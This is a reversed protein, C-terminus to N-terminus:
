REYRGTLRTTIPLRQARSHWLAAALLLGWVLFWPDWLYFHWALARYDANADAHIVNAQLLLGVFTLVGGYVILVGAAVWAAVVVLKQPQHHPRTVVLGLTAAILKLLVSAWVIVSLAANGARGETELTGGVTDLAWTSGLGWSISVLAYALGLLFAAQAWRIGARPSSPLPGGALVRADDVRHARPEMSM